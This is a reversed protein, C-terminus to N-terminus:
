SIHTDILPLTFWFCSGKGLTSEVGIRGGLAEIITKCITLGLGTGQIFSNIKVFREFIHEVMEVSVGVGTDTVKILLDNGERNYSLTISGAKTFKIANSILNSIVQTVRKPDTFIIIDPLEKVDCMLNVGTPMKQSHIKHQEICIEKINVDSKAYDLVGSEIKSFDLIDTILRLLLDNNKNIIKVYESKEEMDDTEAIINSFGVIANLPTRIEHSMNALFASKLMDAERAKQMELESRRTELEAKRLKKELIKEETIDSIYCMIKAPVGNEDTKYAQANVRIWIAEGQLVIKCLFTSHDLKGKMIQHFLSYDNQEKSEFYCISHLDNFSLKNEKIHKFFSNNTPHDNLIPDVYMEDKAVDYESIISHGHLLIAKLRTLNNEMIEEKIAKETNDSIILLNGIKGYEKDNLAIGKVQLHKIQESLDTTYYGTDKIKEFRYNLNFSFVNNKSIQELMEASVNPNNYINIGLLDKRSCGFIEEDMENADILYGDADYLEVGLPLNDFFQKFKISLESAHKRSEEIDKETQKREILISFINAILHMDEVESITWDRHERISDFGIFGQAQHQFMLPIILMSQLRQKKLLLKDKHAEPPLDDINCLIIDRGNRVTEIIWPMTEYSLYDEDDKPTIVWENKVECPFNVFLGEKEFLAVYGWDAQFFNLLLTMAKEIPNHEENFLLVLVESIIRKIAPTNDSSIGTVKTGARNDRMELLHIFEEKTLQSYQSM